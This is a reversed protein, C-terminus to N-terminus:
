VKSKWQGASKETRVHKLAVVRDTTGCHKLVAEEGLVARLFPNTQKEEGVTSPVTYGGTKVTADSWALKATIAANTPEVFRAYALNSQTYEHGVFLLTGDPLAGLKAFADHMQKPSGSNFNGCGAVFMTDGTFAATDGIRYTVHGVTHCPTEMVSVKLKGVDITDGEGVEHTVGEAGDGRGGYITLGPILKAMKNNGGAHDWQMAACWAPSVSCGHLHVAVLKAENPLYSETVSVRRLYFRRM